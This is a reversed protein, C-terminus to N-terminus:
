SNAVDKKNTAKCRECKIDYPPTVKNALLKNCRWCRLEVSPPTETM